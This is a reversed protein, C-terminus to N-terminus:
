ILVDLLRQGRTTSWQPVSSAEAEPRTERANLVPQDQAFAHFTSHQQTFTGSGAGMHASFGDTGHTVAIPQVEFGQQSLSAHLAPLHTRLLAEVESSQARFSAILRKDSVRVQVMLAGLEPPDLRLLVTNSPLPRPWQRTGMVDEPTPNPAPTALGSEVTATPSTTGTHAAAFSGDALHPLSTTAEHARQQPEAPRRPLAANDQDTLATEASMSMTPLGSPAAANQVSSSGQAGTPASSLSEDLQAAADAAALTPSASTIPLASAQPGKGDVPVTSPAAAVTPPAPQETASFSLHDASLESSASPQASPV